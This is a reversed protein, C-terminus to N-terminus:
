QEAVETFRALIRSWGETFRNTATDAPLACAEVFQEDSLADWGRHEVAVRTLDPGLASFTLEVETPVPTINWSMVFREPPDFARVDGWVVETGDDWTEFVRGGVEREFTVARVRDGGASFPNVPWWTGITRVFCDFTHAVDSRVLTAQHVPPRLPTVTM